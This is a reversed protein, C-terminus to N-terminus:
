SLTALWPGFESELCLRGLKRYEREVGKILHAMGVPTGEDAALFAACRTVNRINGGSLEFAGACFALDLDGARPARDGLHREWLALRAARDPVPFDILADLRRAFADDLNARLNTALIAIGDFAEMRQLLYATEVNAYRDRADHVESRKGFLADAEDFFLVGNVREAEAFLRDLNKETEGIYKDVVMALDIAYLDLGLEGAIVEAALTKGTGSPGAFLATIGDGRSGGRGMGWEDRVLDRWRARAVLERLPAASADPLVLNPWGVEPRIRRALRELGTGNQARAGAQLDGPRVSRGALAAQLAAATAARAVQGPGLAFGGVARDIDDAPLGTHASGRQGRGRPEGAREEGAASLSAAWLRVRAARDPVAVDLTAPVTRSWGPDWATHGTLVTHGPEGCPPDALERVATQDAGGLAEVPGAVLGAGHLRAELAVARLAALTDPGAPLRGLDVVLPARGTAAVLAARGVTAAVGLDRPERLYLLRPRGALVRCIVQRDTAARDASGVPEMDPLDPAEMLLRRVTADPRDDGLLHQTVRDPVRLARSLYPRDAEQVAVLGGAVLPAEPLLLARAAPDRRDLGALDLALGVSARRRSVDNHLYGYLQELRRDLDPALALLLIDVAAPSLGCREALDLLRPPAGCTALEAAVGAAEGATHDAPTAPEPELLRAAQAESLYLGRFPDDPMPDAARRARVAAAVRATVVGLRAYTYRASADQPPTARAPARPGTAATMPELTAATEAGGGPRAPLAGSGALRGM